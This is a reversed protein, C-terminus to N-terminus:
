ILGKNEIIKNIRAVFNDINLESKIFYFEAGLEKGRSRSDQDSLNTFIFVTMGALEPDSKIRRLLSFGDFHPLILDLILYSPKEEIIKDEVEEINGLGNYGVVELGTLGFKAEMEALINADDEIIFIKSM